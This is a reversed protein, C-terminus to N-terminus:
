KLAKTMKNLFTHVANVDILHYSAHTKEGHNGVLIGIGDRIQIFADEDTIDDGIYITFYPTNNKNMVMLLHQIAKGKNWYVNTKIEIVKKGRGQDLHEYNRIVQDVIRKVIKEQDPAAQRYHVALAFKKREFKVGQIASLNKKLEKEIKDLEPILRRAKEIEYYFNNPGSIEFGHSGAYYVHDIKVRDKVDEMGRGSIIATRCARSAARIIERMPDSLYAKDFEEVIPTLTGDYDLFLFVSKDKWKGQIEDFKELADPLSDYEHTAPKIISPLEELV